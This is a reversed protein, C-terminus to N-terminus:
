QSFIHSSMCGETICTSLMPCFPHLKKGLMLLNQLSVNRLLDGSSFPVRKQVSCVIFWKIFMLDLPQSPVSKAITEDEGRDSWQVFCIQGNVQATTGAEIYDNSVYM